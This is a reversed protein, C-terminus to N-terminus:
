FSFIDVEYVKFWKMTKSVSIFMSLNYTQHITLSISINTWVDATAMKSKAM